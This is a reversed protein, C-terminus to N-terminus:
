ISSSGPSLGEPDEPFPVSPGISNEIHGGLMHTYRHPSIM